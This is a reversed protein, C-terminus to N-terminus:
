PAQTTQPNIVENTHNPWVRVFHSTNLTLLKDVGAKLAAQVHLGDYVIGGRHQESAMRTLASVYDTLSLEIVTAYRLVDSEILNWAGTTPMQPPGTQGSLTSYIEALGHSCVFFGVRGQQAAHLWPKSASYHIHTQVLAAVLVSTDFLVNMGM